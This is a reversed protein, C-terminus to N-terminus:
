TKGVVELASYEVEERVFPLPAVGDVPLIHPPHAGPQGEIIAEALVIETRIRGVQLSTKGVEIGARAVQKQGVETVDGARRVNFSVM